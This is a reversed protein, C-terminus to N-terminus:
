LAVQSNQQTEFARTSPAHSYAEDLEVGLMGLTMQIVAMHHITHSQLFLLERVLSSQVPSPKDEPTASIVVYTSSARSTNIQSLQRIVNHIASQALSSRKEIEVERSRDDYNIVGDNKLFCQYHDIIHRIHKGTSSLQSAPEWNFQTDDLGSITEMLTGLLKINALCVQNTRRTQFQNLM